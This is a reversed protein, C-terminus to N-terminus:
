WSWGEHLYGQSVKEDGKNAQVKLLDEKGTAKGKNRAKTIFHPYDYKLPSLLSNKIQNLCYFAYDLDLQLKEEKTYERPKEEPAPLQKVRERAWARYAEMIMCLYAISFNGYCVVNEPKLNLQQQIALDFALRLEGPTHGGYNKFIFAHLLAKEEGTPYDQGKLGIVMYIYRLAQKVEEEICDRIKKESIAVQLQQEEITAPLQTKQKALEQNKIAAPLLNKIPQM